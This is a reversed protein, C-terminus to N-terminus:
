DLSITFTIGDYYDNFIYNFVIGYNSSLEDSLKKFLVEIEKLYLRNIISIDHEDAEFNDKSYKIGIPRCGIIYNRYKDYLEGGGSFKPHSQVDIYDYEGHEEGEIALLEKIFKQAEKGREICRGTFPVSINCVFIGINPNSRPCMFKYQFYEGIYKEVNKQIHNSILSILMNKENHYANYAHHVDITNQRLDVVGQLLKYIIPHEDLINLMTIAKEQTIHEIDHKRKRSEM